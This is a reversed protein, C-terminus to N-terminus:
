KLNDVSVVKLTGLVNRAMRKAEELSPHMVTVHGMKRFPATHTKGYLHVYVGPLRLAEELGQYGATGKHDKSGLLNIMVAPQILHTDGLPWNLIARIHQEYQSTYCCEITHHGSNHPRPAVENVLVAGDKTVFMEVALLGVVGLESAVQLAIQEAKEQINKSVQSPSFLMEVLNAEPNFEMEVVPFVSTEGSENRAVIVAIEMEFSVWKELVSPGQLANSLDSESKLPYVGKGDYGGTRAKQMCPFFDAHQELEGEVLRFPATPIGKQEYFLKQLGKDKIIELVAPQPFVKKGRKELEKLAELNVHEIEITVVEADACFDMVTQYDRFDGQVFSAALEAAPAQPVPDLIKISLNYRSVEQILMRGLQGGGLVAIKTTLNVTSM